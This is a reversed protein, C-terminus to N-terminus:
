PVPIAYINHLFLGALGIPAGDPTIGFWECDPGVFGTLDVRMELRRTAVKVRYLNRFSSAGPGQAGNVGRFHIYRSDPTWRPYDINDFRALATWRRTRLSFVRLEHYDPTLAAIFRGDPSWRPTWLGDSGPMDTVVGSRVDLFHLRMPQLPTQRIDGFVLTSGDSSWTPVGQEPGGPSVERPTGGSSKIIYIRRPGGDYQGMFAIESGEPSWHPEMAQLPPLTLQVASTGDVHAKWLSREPYTSYAVWDGQKSYDLECAPIAGLYSEFGKSRPDYRKLKAIQGFGIAYIRRGDPAPMVDGYNVPGDALVTGNLRPPSSFAEHAVWVALGNQGKALFAFLMGDLSWVSPRIPHLTSAVREAPGGTGRIQYLECDDPYADCVSFRLIQRSALWRPHYVAGSLRRTKIVQGDQIFRLESGSADVLLSGNLWASGHTGEAEIMRRPAQGLIETWLYRHHDGAVGSFLLEPGPNRIDALVPEFVGPTPIPTVSRGSLPVSALTAGLGDFVEGFYLRTGDTLLPGYKGFGDNTILAPSIVTPRPIVASRVIAVTVAVTALGIGIAWPWLRRYHAPGNDVSRTGPREPPPGVRIQESWVAEVLQCGQNRVTKIYQGTGRPGLKERLRQLAKRFGDEKVHVDAWMRGILFPRPVIEGPREVLALLLAFETASLDVPEGNKLLQSEFPDLRFPGFCYVQRNAGGDSETVAETVFM